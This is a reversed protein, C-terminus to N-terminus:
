RYINIYEEAFVDLPLIKREELFLEYVLQKKIPMYYNESSIVILDLEQKKVEEPPIVTIGAWQTGWKRRDNDSICIIEFDPNNKIQLEDIYHKGPFGAGFFAIRISGPLKQLLSQKLDELIHKGCEGIEYPFAAQRAVRIRGAIIEGSEDLKEVFQCMDECTTGQEYSDVLPKIAQTLPEEYDSNKMYLVPVDLFGSEVMLASRDVIIADAAYLSTRYDQARDIFVNEKTALRELLKRGEVALGQNITESFFMPHPMVVFYAWKYGEVMEAFKQYEQLDPTVQKKIIGEFILKPFHLKWLIIKRGGAAERIRDRNVQDKHAISDLKPIGLARVAHRNSCYQWYDAKMRESFTYIRWANKVVFTHFHWWRADETDAIEIGYPIYAIRIGMRKLHITLADPNRFSVDYPTQYFAVHPLFDRIAGESYDSFPIGKEALFRDSGLVQAKEASVAGIFFIRIDVDADKVCEEYFSEISPWFSAVQYIIAIRVKEGSKYPIYNQKWNDFFM